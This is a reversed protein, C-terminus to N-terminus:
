RWELFSAGSLAASTHGSPFSMDGGNPHEKDIGLKLGYTIGMTTAFSKLFQSRGNGDDRAFTMTAAFAPLAIQLIDGSREIGEDAFM